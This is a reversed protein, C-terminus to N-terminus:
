LIGGLDTLRGGDNWEGYLIGKRTNEIYKQLRSEYLDYRRIKKNFQITDIRVRRYLEPQRQYHAWVVPDTQLAALIDSDVKYGGQIWRIDSDPYAARGADTMRGLQEMRRCRARNLETWNSGKRRCCFRQISVGEVTKVTSDIWGFCIAEEVADIYWFTTEDVPRGRKVRVWCETETDYHSQLWQRFEDRTTASLLNKIEM